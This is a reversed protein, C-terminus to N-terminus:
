KNGDAEVVVMRSIDADVVNNEDDVAEWKARGSRIAKGHNTWRGSSGGLANQKSGSPKLRTSSM